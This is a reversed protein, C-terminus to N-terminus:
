KAASPREPYPVTAPPTADLRKRIEAAKERVKKANHGGDTARTFAEQEAQMEKYKQQALETLKNELESSAEVISTSRVRPLDSLKVAGLQRAYLENIDLLAQAYPLTQTMEKFASKRWSLNRDLGSFVLWQDVAVDVVGEDQKILFHWRPHIYSKINFASGPATQDNIPLDDVILQKYPIYGRSIEDQWSPAAPPTPTQARVSLALLLVLFCARPKM